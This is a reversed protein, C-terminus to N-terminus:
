ERLGAFEVVKAWKNLENKLFATVEDSKLQAPEAGLSQLKQVADPENVGAVVAENLQKM